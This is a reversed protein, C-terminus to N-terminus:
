RELRAPRIAGCDDLLWKGSQAMDIQEPKGNAGIAKIKFQGTYAKPGQLSVTGEGSTPATDGAGKCSFGVKLTSADVRQVKQTCGDQQPFNDMAAQEATVCVKMSHGKDGTGMGMGQAAMMQEMQKRQAPPMAAMAKQAQAMAAEIQGSQSKMSVSHEWLGPRMKQLPEQASAPALCGASVALAAAACVGTRAIRSMPYTQM